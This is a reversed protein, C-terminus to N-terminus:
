ERKDGGKHGEVSESAKPRYPLLYCKLEKCREAGVEFDPCELCYARMTKIPSTKNSNGPIM